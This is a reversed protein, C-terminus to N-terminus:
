NWDLIVDIGLNLLSVATEWIRARVRAACVGYEDDFISYDYLDIMWEDLTFRVADQKSEIDKALRTKGAGALGCFLHVTPKHDNKAM